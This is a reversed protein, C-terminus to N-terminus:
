EALMFVVLFRKMFYTKFFRNNGLFRSNGLSLAPSLAGSANGM